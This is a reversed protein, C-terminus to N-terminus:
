RAQRIAQAIDRGVRELARSHAAAVASPDRSAASEHAFTRGNRPAANPATITWLVELTAGEDLSSDFRQVELAVRYDFPGGSAQRSTMVRSSGLERALTDAIVRAIAGRLPEAWRWDDAVDVQHPGTRLVLQTRDVAEPVAVPGVFVSPSASAPAPGGADPASLTFFQERPAPAGCAAAMLAVAAISLWRNM